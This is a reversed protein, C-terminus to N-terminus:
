EINLTHGDTREYRVARYTLKQVCNPIILVIPDMHEDSVKFNNPYCEEM